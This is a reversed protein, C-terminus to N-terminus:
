EVYLRVEGEGSRLVVAVADNHLPVAGFTHAYVRIRDTATRCVGVIGKLLHSGAGVGGTPRVCRVLSYHALELVGDHWLCVVVRVCPRLEIRYGAVACQIYGARNGDRRGLVAGYGGVFLRSFVALRYRQGNCGGRAVLEVLEMHQVTLRLHSYCYGGLAFVGKDHGGAIHFHICCELCYVVGNGDLWGLVTGYSGVFLRCVHALRYRQGNRGVLTILEVLQSYHIACGM